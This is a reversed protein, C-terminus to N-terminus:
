VWVLQLNQKPRWALPKSAGQFEDMEVLLWLCVVDVLQILYHERWDLKEAVVVQGLRADQLNLLNEVVM